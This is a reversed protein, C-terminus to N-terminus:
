AARPTLKPAAVVLCIAALAALGAGLYFAHPKLGADWLAGASVSAVLAGFGSAMGAVGLATGKAEKPALKSLLAKGVGDTAAMYLGYVPLLVWPSVGWGFGTYVIAYVLWGAVLLRIPGLRDSLSGLPYSLASYIANFLAYALVVHGVPLGLDQARLLVFTDSSDALAFVVMVAVAWKFRTPLPGRMAAPKPGEGHPLERLRFTLWVAALGPVAAVLFVTRLQDPLAVILLFGCLSGLVAGASDMARHLGFARGREEPTTADAIMADRATTRLGKGFRDLLRAALVLPWGTALGIMPKSVAALGYGARIFPTRRGLADSRRGSWWRMVNVLALAAGEILGLMKAPAQLAGVLFLPLVPYVMESAVDTLFSIWSLHWVQRPLRKAMRERNQM